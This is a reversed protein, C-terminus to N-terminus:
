LKNSLIEVNLTNKIYVGKFHGSQIKHDYERSVFSSFFYKKKLINNSLQFNIKLKLLIQNIIGIFGNKEYILKIRSLRSESM